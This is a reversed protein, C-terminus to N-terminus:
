VLPLGRGARPLQQYGRSVASSLHEVPYPWSAAELARDAPVGRSALDRVTEAVTGVEGRQEDVFARDVVSGHGPVVVSRETLLSLLLDLTAPWELLFCDEGFGPVGGRPDGGGSGSVLDGAFLVDVDPVRAVADGATHGRGLHLIEVQRDGLDVVRASSFTDTCSVAGAADHAVVPPGGYAQSVVGNGSTHGLHGHTDLVAVVDGAGLSRVLEVLHAAAAESGGTDVLLLGATGAVLGVNLHGPAPRAVWCRDAVEVFGSGPENDPAIDPM